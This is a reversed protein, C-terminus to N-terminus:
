EELFFTSSLVVSTISIPLALSYFFLAMKWSSSHEHDELQNKEKLKREVEQRGASPLVCLLYLLTFTLGWFNLYVICKKVNVYFNLAWIVLVLLAMIIRIVQMSFFSICATTKNM